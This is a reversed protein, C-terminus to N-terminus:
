ASKRPEAPHIQRAPDARTRSAALAGAGRRRLDQLSAVNIISQYHIEFEENAIANRLDMELARRLRAAADM